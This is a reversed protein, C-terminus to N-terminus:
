TTREYRWYKPKFILTDDMIEVVTYKEMAAGNSFYGFVKSVNEDGKKFIIGYAGDISQGAMSLNYRQEEGPELNLYGRTRSDSPMFYLSDVKSSSKNYVVFRATGM